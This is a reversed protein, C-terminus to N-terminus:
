LWDEQAQMLQNMLSKAENICWERDLHAGDTHHMTDFGFVWYGDPIDNLSDFDICEVDEGWEKKLKSISDCFTLGGHIQIQESPVDDYFKGNYLNSPPVAVYGNAYGCDGYMSFRRNVTSNLFAYYKDMIM